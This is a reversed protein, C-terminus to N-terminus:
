GFQLPVETAINEILSYVGHLRVANETQRATVSRQTIEGLAQLAAEKDALAANALAHAEEATRTVTQFSQPTYRRIHWGLPLAVGGLSLTTRHVEVRCNETVIDSDYLPIHRGFFQLTFTERPRGCPRLQQENLPIEVTIERTTKALVRGSSRHLTTGQESEIVGSALLNGKAVADGVQVAAVGETIEVAVIQGDHAAILNSPANPALPVEQPNTEKVEIQAVCGNLNVALWSIDELRTLADLRVAISDVGQKKAGVCVGHEALLTCLATEDAHQLGHIDVVWIRSSFWSLLVAYALVGFILGVRAHYRRLVFAAGHRECVRLRRGCRRAVPRLRSYANARCCASFRTDTRATNWLAIGNQAALTLLRGAADGDTEFRVWGCLWRWFAYENM